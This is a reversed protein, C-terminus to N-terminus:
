KKNIIRREDVGLGEYETRDGTRGISDLMNGTQRKRSALHLQTRNRHTRLAARAQRGEPKQGATLAQWVEERHQNGDM